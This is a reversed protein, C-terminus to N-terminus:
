FPVALLKFVSAVRRGPTDAAGRQIGAIFHNYDSATGFDFGPKMKVPRFARQSFECPSNSVARRPRVQYKLRLKRGAPAFDKEKRNRSYIHTHGTGPHTADL